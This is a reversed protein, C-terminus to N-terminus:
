HVVIYRGPNMQSKSQKQIAQMNLIAKSKLTTFFFPISSTPLLTQPPSSFISSSFSSFSFSFYPMFVMDKHLPAYMEMTWIYELILSLNPIMFSTFNGM